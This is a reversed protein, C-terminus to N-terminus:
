EDDTGKARNSAWGIWLIETIMLLLFNLTTFGIMYSYAFSMGERNEELVYICQSYENFYIAKNIVLHPKDEVSWPYFLFAIIFFKTTM